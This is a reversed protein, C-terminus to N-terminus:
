FFTITAAMAKKKKEVVDGWFFTIATTMAKKKKEGVSIALFPSSL